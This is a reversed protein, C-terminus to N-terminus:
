KKLSDIEKQMADIQKQQANLRAEAGDLRKLIGQVQVEIEKIANVTAAILPRDQLSLFGNPGKSVAEPIFAQVNQASFGAYQAATDLGSSKNWHYLIPTIKEIAALGETMPGNINKLREDSAASVNGLADTTLTGSGFGALRVTGTTTFQATPTTTAIGVNGAADVYFYTNGSSTAVSFISQANDLTDVQMTTTGSTNTVTFANVINAPPVVALTGEPTTTAGIGVNGGTFIAAPGAGSQKVSLTPYASSSSAFLGAQAWLATTTASTNVGYNTAPTFPFAAGAGGTYQPINLVDGSFTAAGSSGTTTLSIAKQYDIDGVATAVIGTGAGMLIGTLTTSGTGGNSVTLPAAVSTFAGTGNSIVFRSGATFSIAGTGGDSVPIPVAQIGLLGTGGSTKVYGNSTLNTLNPTSIGNSFTLVTTTANSPFLYSFSSGASGNSAATIQGQQNVTINANTYSAPSVATNTISYSGASYTLGTGASFLARIYNTFNTIYEGAITIATTINAKPFTSTATSSTGFFSAAKIFPDNGNVRAPSVAGVDTSTAQFPVTIAAHAQMPISLVCLAFGILAYFFSQLSATHTKNM